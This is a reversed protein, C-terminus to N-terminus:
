NIGSHRKYINFITFAGFKIGPSSLFSVFEDTLGFFSLKQFLISHHIKDFAKSFDTMDNTMLYDHLLM